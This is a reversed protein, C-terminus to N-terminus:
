ILLRRKEELNHRLDHAIVKAIMRWKRAAFSVNNPNSRSETNVNECGYVSSTKKIHRTVSIQAASAQASDSIMHM